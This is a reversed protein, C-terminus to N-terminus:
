RSRAIVDAYLEIRGENVAHLFDALSDLVTALRVASTRVKVENSNLNYTRVLTSTADSPLAALNAYFKKWSVRDEFLYMEVNSTYFTTVTAAHDNLYRGLAPLAKGGAFDGVIPVILNKDEFEKLVRFNEETALY